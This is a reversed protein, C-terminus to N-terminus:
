RERSGPAWREGPRDGRRAVGDGVLAVVHHLRRRQSAAVDQHILHRALRLPRALGVQRRAEGLAVGAAEVEFIVRRRRALAEVGHAAVVSTPVRARM